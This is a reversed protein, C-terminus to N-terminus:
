IHQASGSSARGRYCTCGRDREVWNRALETTGDTSSDDVILVDFAEQDLIKILVVPLTEKENYTPLVVLPKM